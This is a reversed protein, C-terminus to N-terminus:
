NALDYSLLSLDLFQLSFKLLFGLYQLLTVAQYALQFHLRLPVQPLVLFKKPLNREVVVTHLLELLGNLNEFVLSHYRLRLQVACVGDDVLQLALLRFNLILKSLEDLLVIRHLSAHLICHHFDLVHM